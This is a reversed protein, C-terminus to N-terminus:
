ARNGTELALPVSTPGAKVPAPRLSACILASILSFEELLPALSVAHKERAGLEVEAARQQLLSLGLNGAEGKPSHSRLELQESSASELALATKDHDRALDLLLSRYLDQNGAM